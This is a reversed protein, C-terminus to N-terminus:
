GKRKKFKEFERKAKRIYDSVADQKKDSVADQKKFVKMLYTLERLGREEQRIGDMSRM